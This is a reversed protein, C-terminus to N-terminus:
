SHKKRAPKPALKKEPVPAPRSVTWALIRIAQEGRRVQRGLSQWVRYGAVQTADPRQHAILLQNGLSYRHFRSRVDIWRRWGESSTLERVAAEIREREEQRREAKFAERRAPDMIRRGRKTRSAM